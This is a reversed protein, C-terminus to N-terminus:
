RKNSASALVVVNRAVWFSFLVNPYVQAFSSAADNTAGILKGDVGNENRFHQSRLDTSPRGVLPVETGVINRQIHAVSGSGDEYLDNTPVSPGSTVRPSSPKQSVGHLSLEVEAVAAQAESRLRVSQISLSNGEVAPNVVVSDPFVPVTAEALGKDQLLAAEKKTKIHSRLLMLGWVLAVLVYCVNAAIALGSLAKPNYNYM